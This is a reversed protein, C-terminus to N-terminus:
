GILKGVKFTEEFIAIYIVKGRGEYAREDNRIDAISFYIDQIM